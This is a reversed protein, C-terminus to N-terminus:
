NTAKIKKLEQQKPNNKYNPGCNTAKVKKNMNNTTTKIIQGWNAHKKEKKITTKIIQGRTPLKVKKTM